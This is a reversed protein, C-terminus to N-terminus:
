SSDLRKWGVMQYPAENTNLHSGRTKVLINRTPAPRSSPSRTRPASWQWRQRSCEPCEGSELYFLSMFIWWEIVIEFISHPASLSLSFTSIKVLRMKQNSQGWAPHVLQYDNKGTFWINKGLQSQEKPVKCSLSIVGAPYVDARLVSIDSGSFM